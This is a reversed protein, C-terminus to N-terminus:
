AADRARRLADNLTTVIMVCSALTAVLLALLQLGLLSSLIGALWPLGEGPAFPLTAIPDAASANATALGWNAAARSAYIVLGLGALPFVIALLHGTLGAVFTHRHKAGVLARWMTGFVISTGLALAALAGWVLYTRPSLDNVFWVAAGFCAAALWIGAVVTKTGVVKNAM